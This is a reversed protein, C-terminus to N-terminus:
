VGKNISYLKRKPRRRAIAIGVLIIALAIYGDAPLREALLIISFIVGFVPVLFNIQSLFSAGSRRILFIIIVAGLATPMLGTYLVAGWVSWSASVSALDTLLLLPISMLFALVMFSSTSQQWTLGVLWKTVIANVGYSMAALMAAYQRQSQDSLSALKDPGFLIIIGVLAVTFGAITYRNPKEDKTFIQALLLTFLPMTAMLIATLGADLGQQAWALLSFPLTHGFFASGAIAWWIKGPPPFRQGAAFLLCLLVAAAIAVRMTVPVAPPLAEVAVKTATFNSALIAALGIM